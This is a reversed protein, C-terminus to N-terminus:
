GMPGEVNSGPPAMTPMGLLAKMFDDFSYPKNHTKAAVLEAGATIPGTLLSLAGLGRVGMGAPKAGVPSYLLKGGRGFEFMSKLLDRKAQNSGSDTFGLNSFTHQGGKNVPYVHDLNWTFDEKTAMRGEAGAKSASDNWLRLLEKDSIGPRVEGDKIYSKQPSWDPLPDLGQQKRKLQTENYRTEGGKLVSQEWQRLEKLSPQKSPAQNQVRTTVKDKVKHSRLAQANALERRKDQISWAKEAELLAQEEHDLYPM